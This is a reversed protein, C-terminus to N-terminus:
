EVSNLSSISDIDGRLAAQITWYTALERNSNYEMAISRCEQGTGVGADTMMRYEHKAQVRELAVNAPKFGSAKKYWVCAEMLDKSESDYEYWLGTRYMWSPEQDHGSLIRLGSIIYDNDLPDDDDVICKGMAWDLYKNPEMSPFSMEDLRAYLRNRAIAAKVVQIPLMILNLYQHAIIAEDASIDTMEALTSYRSVKATLEAIQSELKSILAGNYKFSCTSNKVSYACFSSVPLDLVKKRLDPFDKTFSKIIDKTAVDSSKVGLHLDFGKSYYEIARSLNASGEANGSLSNEYMFGSMLAGLENNGNAAEEFCRAAETYAVKEGSFYLLRMGLRVLDGPNGSDAGSKLSKIDEQTLDFLNEYTIREM